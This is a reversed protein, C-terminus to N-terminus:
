DTLEMCSRGQMGGERRSPRSRLRLGGLVVASIGSDPSVTKTKNREAIAGSQPLASRAACALEVQDGKYALRSGM